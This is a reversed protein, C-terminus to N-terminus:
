AAKDVVSLSPTGVPVLVLDPEALLLERLPVFEKTFSRVQGIRHEAPKGYDAFNPALNAVERVLKSNDIFESKPFRAGWPM